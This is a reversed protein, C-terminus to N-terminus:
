SAWRRYAEIWEWGTPPQEPLPLDLIGIAQRHTGRQCIAVIGSGDCLDITTVTAEVGLVTTTFPVVLHEEFMAHFGTLQEYVDHADETAQEIMADLRARGSIAM